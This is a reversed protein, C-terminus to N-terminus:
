NSRLGATGSDGATQGAQEEEGVGGDFAMGEREIVQEVTVTM